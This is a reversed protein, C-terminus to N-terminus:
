RRLKKAFGNVNSAFARALRARWAEFGEAGQAPEEGVASRTQGSVIRPKRRDKRFDRFVFRTALSAGRVASSRFVNEAVILEAYCEAASASHRTKGTEITRTDLPQAEFVLRADPVGVLAALGAQDLLQAQVPPTLAQILAAQDRLNEDKNRQYDALAGAMGLNSLLGANIAGTAFAPWVHLECGAPDSAAAASPTAAAM